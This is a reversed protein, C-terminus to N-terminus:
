DVSFRARCGKDVWVGNRDTGWSQGYRCDARSLKREIEVRGRGVNVPCHHYRGDNSECTVSGGYHQGGDNRDDDHKDALIAAGILGLVVAGAVVAGKNGDDHDSRQEDRYDDRYRNDWHGRGYAFEARCGNAVWVGRGDFGWTDGEWCGAHSLQRVLEIGDRTDVDCYNTQHSRSACQFTDQAVALGPAALGAALVLAGLWPMTRISSNM